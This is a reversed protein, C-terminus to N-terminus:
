LHSAMSCITNLSVLASMHHQMKTTRRRSTTNCGRPGPFSSRYVVRWLLIKIATCNMLDGELIALNLQGQESKNGPRTGTGM